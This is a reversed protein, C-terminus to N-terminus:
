ESVGQVQLRRFATPTLFLSLLSPCSRCSMDKWVCWVRNWIIAIVEASRKKEGNEPSSSSCSSSSTHTTAGFSDWSFVSRVPPWSISFDTQSWTSFLWLIVPWCQVTCCSFYFSVYVPDPSWRTDSWVDMQTLLFLSFFFSLSFTHTYDTRFVLLHFPDTMRIGYYLLLQLTNHLGQTYRTFFANQRSKSEVKKLRQVERVGERQRCWFAHCTECRCSLYSTKLARERHISRRHTFKLYGATKYMFCRITKTTESLRNVRTAATGDQRCTTCTVNAIRTYPILDWADWLRHMVGDWRRDTKGPRIIRDNQFCLVNWTHRLCHNCSRSDHLLVLQLGAPFSQVCTHIDTMITTRDRWIHTYHSSEVVALLSSFFSILLFSFIIRSNESWQKTFINQPLVKGRKLYLVGYKRSGRHPFSLVLHLSTNSPFFHHSFRCCSSACETCQKSDILLVAPATTTESASVCLLNLSVCETAYHSFTEGRIRGSEEYDTSTSDTWGEEMYVCIHVATCRLFLSNLSRIWHHERKKGWQMYTLKLWLPTLSLTFSELMMGNMPSGNRYLENCHEGEGGRM